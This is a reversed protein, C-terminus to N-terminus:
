SVIPLQLYKDTSKQGVNKMLWEALEWEARSAFPEWAAKGELKQQEELIEFRTKERRLTDGAPGPFPEVYRKPTLPDSNGDDAEEANTQNNDVDFDHTPDPNLNPLHDDPVCPEPSNVRRRKPSLTINKRVIDKHWENLCSTSASIHQNVCRQTPFTKRCFQCRKSTPPM